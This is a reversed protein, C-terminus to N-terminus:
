DNKPPKCLIIPFKLQSDETIMRSWAACALRTKPADTTFNLHRELANSIHWTRVSSLFYWSSSFIQRQETTVHLYRSKSKESVERERERKREGEREREATDYPSQCSLGPSWCVVPPADGEAPYWPTLSQPSWGATQSQLPVQRNGLSFVCVFICACVCVGHLCCCCSFASVCVRM